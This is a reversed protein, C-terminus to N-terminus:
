FALQQPLPSHLLLLLRPLLPGPSLLVTTVLFPPPARRDALSPLLLLSSSTGTSLPGSTTNGTPNQFGAANGAHSGGLRSDDLCGENPDVPIALVMSRHASHIVLPSVLGVCIPRVPKPLAERACNCASGNRYGESLSVRQELSVLELSVLSISTKRTCGFLRSTTQVRTGRGPSSAPDSIVAESVAQVCRDPQPHLRPM